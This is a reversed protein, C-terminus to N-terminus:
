METGAWADYSDHIRTHDIDLIDTYLQTARLTTRAVPVGIAVTRGLIDRQEGKVFCQQPLPIVFDGDTIIAEVTALDLLTIKIPNAEPYCMHFSELPGCAMIILEMSDRLDIAERECLDHVLEVAIQKLQLRNAKASRAYISSALDKLFLHAGCSEVLLELRFLRHFDIIRSLQEFTDSFDLKSLRLEQLRPTYRTLGNTQGMAWVHLQM